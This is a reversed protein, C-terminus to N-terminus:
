RRCMRRRGADSAAVIRARSTILEARCQANAVATAVLETFATMWQETDPAPGQGSGVAIL